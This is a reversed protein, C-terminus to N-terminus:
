LIYRSNSFLTMWRVNGLKEQWASVCIESFSHEVEFNLILDIVVTANLEASSSMLEKWITIGCGGFEHKITCFCFLWRIDVRGFEYIGTGCSGFEHKFTCGSKDFCRHTHINCPCIFHPRFLLFLFGFYIFFKSRWLRQRSSWLTKVRACSAYRM